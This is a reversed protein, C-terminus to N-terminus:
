QVQVEPKDGVTKYYEEWTEEIERASEEDLKEIVFGAHVLVKENIKIDPTMAINVQTEVGNAVALATAGDIKIITMPIALCMHNEKTPMGAM